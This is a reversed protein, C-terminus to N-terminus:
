EQRLFALIVNSAFDERNDSSGAAEWLFHTIRGATTQNNTIGDAYRRENILRIVQMKDWAMIAGNQRSSQLQTTALQPRFNSFRRAWLSCKPSYSANMLHLTWDRVSSIVSLIDAFPLIQGLDLGQQRITSNESLLWQVGHQGWILNEQSAFFEGIGRSTSTILGGVVPLYDAVNEIAKGVGTGFRLQRIIQAALAAGPAGVPILTVLDRVALNQALGGGASAVAVIRNHSNPEYFSQRSGFSKPEGFTLLDIRSHRVRRAKLHRALIYGAAGGYSHGIISIEMNSNFPRMAAIILGETLYLGQAFSYVVLERTTGDLAPVFQSGAHGIWQSPNTTGGLVVLVHNGYRIVVWDPEYTARDFAYDVLTGQSERAYRRIADADSSYIARLLYCGQDAAIPNPSGNALILSPFPM